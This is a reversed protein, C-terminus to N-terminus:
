PIPEGRIYRVIAERDQAVQAAFAAMDLPGDEEPYYNSTFYVENLRVQADESIRIIEDPSLMYPLDSDRAGGVPLIRPSHPAFEHSMRLLLNREQEYGNASLWNLPDDEIGPITNVTRSWPLGLVLALLGEAPGIETKPLSIGLEQALDEALKFLPYVFPDVVLLDPRNERLRFGGNDPEAIEKILEGIGIRAERVLQNMLVPDIM